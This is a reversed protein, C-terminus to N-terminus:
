PERDELQGVAAAHVLVQERHHAGVYPRRVLRDTVEIRLGRGVLDARAAEQATEVVEVELVEVTETRLDTAAGFLRHSVRDRCQRVAAVFGLRAAVTVPLRDRQTHRDGDVAVLQLHVEGAGRRLAGV